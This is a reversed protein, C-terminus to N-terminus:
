LNFAVGGNVTFPATNFGRIEFYEKNTINQLDVFFKMYKGCKYEGYANLLFYSDMKVDEAMFGGVDYRDSV